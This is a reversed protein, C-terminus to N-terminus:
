ILTVEIFKFFICTLYELIKVRKQGFFLVQLTKIESINATILVVHCRLSPSKEARELLITMVFLM